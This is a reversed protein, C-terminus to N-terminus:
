LTEGFFATGREVTAGGKFIPFSVDAIIYVVTVGPACSFLRAVRGGFQHNVLGPGTQHHDNGTEPVRSGTLGDLAVRGYCVVRVSRVCACLEGAGPCPGRPAHPAAPGAAMGSASHQCCLEQGSNSTSASM